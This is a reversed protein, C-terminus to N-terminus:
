DVSLGIRTKVKANASRAYVKEIVNSATSSARGALGSSHSVSIVFEANSFAIFNVDGTEYNITGNGVGKLRGLGDDWMFENVNSYEDYSDRDYVVDDPLKAAVAGQVSAAFRGIANGILNTSSGGTTGTTLAIASSSLRQGSTLRLDGNIIAVNIRKEFLASATTYYQTDLITQIKNIIGNTGGFNVNSSDTTFAVEYASGGDVAVKFYYATSATLGSNTNSTIGSFGFSQYGPRYFKINVSGPVIGSAAVTLARGYGFFNMAKFKGDIDTRATSYKNFKGYMNFFPLLVADDDSHDSAATSGYVGRMVTLTNTALSARTGIATVEMIENTLRILDGVRFLNATCNTASTYPELYLTTASASGVVGSATASDVDATSDTYMNSDPATNSVVTGDMFNANASDVIQTIPLELRSNTPLIMQLYNSGSQTTDDTFIPIQLTLGIAADGDNAILMRNPSSMAAKGKTSTAQFIEIANTADLEQVTDFSEKSGTGGGRTSGFDITTKRRRRKRHGELGNGGNGMGGYAM